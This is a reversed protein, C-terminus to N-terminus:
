LQRYSSVIEIGLEHGTQELGCYIKFHHSFNLMEKIEFSKRKITYFIGEDTVTFWRSRWNRCFTNSFKKSCTAETYRGGSHKKMLVESYIIGHGKITFDFVLNPHSSTLFTRFCPTMSHWMSLKRSLFTLFNSWNPCIRKNFKVKKGSQFPRYKDSTTRKSIM